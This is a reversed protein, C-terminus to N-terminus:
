NISAEAGREDLITKNAVSNKLDPHGSIIVVNKM